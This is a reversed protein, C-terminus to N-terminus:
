RVVAPLNEPETRIVMNYYLKTKVLRILTPNIPAWVGNIYFDNVVGIVTLQLTDNMYIQKGIPQTWRFNEVLKKNVIISGKRDAEERNVSFSRGELLRLGMTEAYIPGIDM